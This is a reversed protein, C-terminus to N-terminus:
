ETASVEALPEPAFTETEFAVTEGDPEAQLESAPGGIFATAAADAGQAENVQISSVTGAAVAASLSRGLAAPDQVLPALRTPGHEYRPSSAHPLVPELEGDVYGFHRDPGAVHLACGTSAIAATLLVAPLSYARM